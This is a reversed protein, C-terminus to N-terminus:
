RIYHVVPKCRHKISKRRKYLVIHKVYCPVGIIDPASHSYLVNDKTRSHQEIRLDHLVDLCLIETGTDVLVQGSRVSCDVQKIILCPIVCVIGIVRKCNKIFFLLGNVNHVSIIDRTLAIILPHVATLEYYISPTRIHVACLYLALIIIWFCLYLVLAVVILAATIPIWLPAGIILLVIEWARLARKPKMREKVIKTIPVEELIQDKIEDVTGLGSVAEEEPIGDEMRDDIMEEYYDKSKKIDDESLGNLSGILSEIFEAKTM